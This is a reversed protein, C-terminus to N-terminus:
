LLRAIDRWTVLLLLAILILFGASHAIYSIRPNVPSGKIKEVLLFFLRGGDLAPIPLINIIALSMSLSAIFGLFQSVGARGFELALSVIGVPGRVEGAPKEIDWIFSGILQGLAKIVAITYKITLELGAIPAAYWPIRITGYDGMYIGIAGEGEPPNARPIVVANQKADDRLFEITIENSIHSSVFQKIDDSNSITIHENNYSMGIVVDRAQLGSLQAPSNESVGAIEVNQDDITAGFVGATSIADPISGDANLLIPFGFWLIFSFLIFAVIINAIVGASIIISRKAISKSFFSGPGTEEGDEGYIKVFGGFPLANISYLTEGRKVGFIRPPYGIGFEDVRVGSKKASWFHGFEHALILFALAIIFLVILM